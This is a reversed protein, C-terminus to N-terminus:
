SVRCLLLGGVKRSLAERSELVGCCTTLFLLEGLNLGRVVGRGKKTATDFGQSIQGLQPITASIPRKPTTVVEAKSFIPRGELYKLGLWLRMAAVNAETVIEPPKAVMEELTPPKAKGRYIASILGSRHMALALQLNYKTNKVSTIGLRAKTANQLHSCMNAINIISPM